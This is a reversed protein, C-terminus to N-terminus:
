DSEDDGEEKEVDDEEPFYGLLELVEEAACDLVFNETASQGTLWVACRNAKIHKVAKVDEAMVWFGEVLEIM